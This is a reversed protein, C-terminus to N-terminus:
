SIDSTLSKDVEKEQTIIYEISFNMCGNDVTVTKASVTKNKLCKKRHAVESPSMYLKTIITKDIGRSSWYRKANDPLSENLSKTIYKGIYTATRQTDRVLTATNFGYNFQPMNFVHSRIASVTRGSDEFCIGETGRFLGHFHYAGDAHLEPVIVYELFPAYRAKINQIQKAIRKRIEEYNYRDIRERDLTITVFYEWENSYVIDNIKQITRSLSVVQSREKDPPKEKDTEDTACEGTFRTDTYVNDLNDELGDDFWPKLDPKKKKHFVHTSFAFVKRGLAHEKIIVNHM